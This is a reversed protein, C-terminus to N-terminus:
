VLGCPNINKLIGESGRIKRHITVAQRFRSELSDLTQLSVTTTRRNNKNYM